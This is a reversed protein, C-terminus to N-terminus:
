KLYCIDRPNVDPLYPKIHRPTLSHLVVLKAIPDVGQFIGQCWAVRHDHIKRNVYLWFAKTYISGSRSKSGVACEEVHVLEKRRHTILGTAFQCTGSVTAVM